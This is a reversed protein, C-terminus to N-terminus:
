PSGSRKENGMEGGDSLQNGDPRILPGGDAANFAEPFTGFLLAELANGLL